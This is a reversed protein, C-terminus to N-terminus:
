GCKMHAVADGGLFTTHAQNKSWGIALPTTQPHHASLTAELIYASGARITSFVTHQWNDVVLVQKQGCL